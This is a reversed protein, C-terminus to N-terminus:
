ARGFVRRFLDDVHRLQWDLDFCRALERGGLAASVHPDSELLSRFDAGEKRARMAAAQVWEYAQERTVGKEALALLVNGSYILGGSANLNRRMAVPDVVMGSVIRTFRDLMYDLLIASDPLLVREASSHSIDREHWLPVNEFAALMYGRILRALGAMQESGVPNKKHPMASSGKQGKAFPEEVEGVESRQLHRIEMACTEITTAALAIAALLEAHRDRQIVQSAIPVPTLGLAGLAAAEIEPGLHAYTGVAGSLKGVALRGRAATIREIDRRIQDHWLALKLGFTIPEAHMGHTRGIMPTAKHEFARAEVARRLGELGALLLDVSEVIQLAQATDVVDNSTLGLHVFRSEPGVKEAVSTLFAIVDHQVTAEIEQIRALDFGARARIVAAAEKPVRGAAALADTVALEVKLWRDFKSTEDWVRTMAPRSYRPIM